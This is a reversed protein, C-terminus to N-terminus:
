VALQVGVARPDYPSVAIAVSVTPFWVVDAATETVTTDGGEMSIVAGAAPAATELVVVIVALAVEAMPEIADTSNKTFPVDKPM